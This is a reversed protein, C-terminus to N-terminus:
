LCALNPPEGVIAQEQASGSDVIDGVVVMGTAIGVRTQLPASGLGVLDDNGFAGALQSQRVPACNRRPTLAEARTMTYWAEPGSYTHTPATMGPTVIAEM